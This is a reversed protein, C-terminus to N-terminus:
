KRSGAPSKVVVIAVAALAMCTGVGILVIDRARHSVPDPEPPGSIAHGALPAPMKAAPPVDFTLAAIPDIVGYGAAANPGAQTTQATRKIREMIEGASMDPFRSRILAVLGSVFPAAFSTGNVPVLGHQPDQWANMLGPGNPSLSTLQEGPAALGV